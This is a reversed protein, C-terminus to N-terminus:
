IALLISMKKSKINKNLKIRLKKREIIYIYIKSTAYFYLRPNFFRPQRALGLLYLCCSEQKRSLDTHSFSPKKKTNKYMNERMKVM